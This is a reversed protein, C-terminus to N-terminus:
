SQAEHIALLYRHCIDRFPELAPNRNLLHLLRLNARSWKRWFEVSDPAPRNDTLWDELSLLRFEIAAAERFKFLLDDSIAAAKEADLKV